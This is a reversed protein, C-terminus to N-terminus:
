HKPKEAAMRELASLKERLLKIEEETVKGDATMDDVEHVLEDLRKLKEIRERNESRAEDM